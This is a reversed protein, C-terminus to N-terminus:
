RERNQSRRGEVLQRITQSLAVVDPLKTVCKKIGAKRASTKIDSSLERATVLIIPMRKRHPLSHVLRALKV